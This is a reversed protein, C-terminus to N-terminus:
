DVTCNYLKVSKELMKAQRPPLISILYNYTNKNFRLKIFNKSIHMVNINSKQQENLVSTSLYIFRVKTGLKTNLVGHIYYSIGVDCFVDYAIEVKKCFLTKLILKDQRFEGWSYLDRSVKKISYIWIASCVMMMVALFVTAFNIQALIVAAFAVPVVVLVIAMIAAYGSFSNGLYFNKRM